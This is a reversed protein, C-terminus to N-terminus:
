VVSDVVTEFEDGVNGVNAMMGYAAEIIEKAHVGYEEHRARRSGRAPVFTPWEANRARNAAVTADLCRATREGAVDPDFSPCVELSYHMNHAYSSRPKVLSSGPVALADEVLAVVGEFSQCSSCLVGVELSDFAREGLDFQHECVSPFLVDSCQFVVDITAASLLHVRAVNGQTLDMPSVDKATLGGCVYVVRPPPGSGRLAVAVKEVRQTVSDTANYSVIPMRSLGRTAAHPVICVFAGTTDATEDIDRSGPDGVYFAGQGVDVAVTAGTYAGAGVVVDYDVDGHWEVVFTLATVDFGRSRMLCAVEEMRNVCASTNRAKASRDRAYYSLGSDKNLDAGGPPVDRELRADRLCFAAGVLFRRLDPELRSYFDVWPTMDGPVDLNCRLASVEDNVDVAGRSLVLTFAVVVSPTRDTITYVPVGDANDFSLSKPNFSFDKVIAKAPEVVRRLSTLSARAAYGLVTTARSVATTASVLRLDRAMVVSIYLRAAERSTFYPTVCLVRPSHVSAGPASLVAATRSRSFQHNVIRLEARTASLYSQLRKLADKVGGFGAEVLADYVAFEMGSQASFSAAGPASVATRGTAAGRTVKDFADDMVRMDRLISVSVDISHSDMAKLTGQATTLDPLTLPLGPGLLPARAALIWDRVLPMTDYDVNPVDSADPLLHHCMASLLLGAHDPELLMHRLRALDAM